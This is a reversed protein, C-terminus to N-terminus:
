RKSSAHSEELRLLRSKRQLGGAYGGLSGDSAIVRHCPVIVAVPNDHNAMGIARAARPHGVQRAIEGYSRTQGYPISQLAKWVKKQFPTGQMDLPVTFERRTGEAYENLEQAAQLAWKTAQSNPNGNPKGAAAAHRAPRSLKRAPGFIVERIGRESCRITFIGLRTAVTAQCFSQM